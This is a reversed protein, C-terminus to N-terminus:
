FEDDPIELEDQEESHFNSNNCIEDDVDDDINNKKIQQITEKEYENQINNNSNLQMNEFVKSLIMTDDKSSKSKNDDNKSNLDDINYPINFSYPNSHFVEQEEETANRPEPLNTFQYVKSTFLRST